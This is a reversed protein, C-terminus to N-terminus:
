ARLSQTELISDSLGEVEKITKILDLNEMNKLFEEM